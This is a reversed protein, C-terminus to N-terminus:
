FIAKVAQIKEPWTVPLERHVRGQMFAYLFLANWVATITFVILVVRRWKMHERLWFLVFAFGITSFFGMFEYARGGFASGFYVMHWSSNIWIISIATAIWSFPFRGKITAFFLAILGAAMMPHWNFWGHHPSFLSAYLQPQFWNFGEGEYSYYIWHGYLHKWALLQPFVGMFAGVLAVIVMMASLGPRNRCHRIMAVLILAVPMWLYALSSPRCIVLLGAHFAACLTLMLVLSRSPQDSESDTSELQEKIKIALWVVLCALVFVVNHVMSIRASQYYVMPSNLWTLCIAAICVDTTFWRRLIRALLYFGFGSILIQGLWIAIQYPPSYGDQPWHTLPTIWHALLYPPLSLVAWGVTFKNGVLGTETVPEQLISTKAAPELFPTEKFDNQFDIDGDVVWSRLWLFYHTDDAGQIFPENRTTSFAHFGKIVVAISSVILVMLILGINWNRSIPAGQTPQQISRAM